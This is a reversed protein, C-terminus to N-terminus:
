VCIRYYISKGSTHSNRIIKCVMGPRLGLVKAVADFRSIQPLKDESVNYKSLLQKKEDDTIISHKPVMQHKTIDFLLSGINFLQIFYGNIYYNELKDTFNGYKKSLLLHDNCIVILEDKNPVLIADEDSDEHKFFKLVYKRIDISKLKKKIHYKVYCQRTDKDKTNVLIDLMDNEKMVRIENISVNKYKEVNYGRRELMQLLIGRSTLLEINM